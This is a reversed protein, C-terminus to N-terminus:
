WNRGYKVATIRELQGRLSALNDADSVTAEGSSIKGELITIRERLQTENLERGMPIENLKM